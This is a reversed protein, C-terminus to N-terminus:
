QGLTMNKKVVDTVEGGNWINIIILLTIINNGPKEQFYYM